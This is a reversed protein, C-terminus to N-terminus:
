VVIMENSVRIYSHFNTLSPIRSCIGFSDTSKLFDKVESLM